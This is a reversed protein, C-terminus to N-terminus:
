RQGASADSEPPQPTRALLPHVAKRTRRASARQAEAEAMARKWLAAFQPARDRLRYAAQRSMGVARASAAVKGSRALLKLFAAAKAGTWRTNDPLPPKAASPPSSADDM